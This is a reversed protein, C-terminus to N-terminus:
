KKSTIIKIRHKCSQCVDFAMNFFNIRQLDGGCFCNRIKKKKPTNEEFILSEEDKESELAKNAVKRLKGIKKKLNNNERILKDLIDPNDEDKSKRSM